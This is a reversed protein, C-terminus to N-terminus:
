IILINNLKIPLNNYCPIAKLNNAVIEMGRIRNDKLKFNDKDKIYKDLKENVEKFNYAILYIHYINLIDENEMEIMYLNLNEEMNNGM